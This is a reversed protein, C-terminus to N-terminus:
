VDKKLEDSLLREVGKVIAPRSYDCNKCADLIEYIASRRIMNFSNIEAELAKMAENRAAYLDGNEFMKQRFDDMDSEQLEEEFRNKIEPRRRTKSLESLHPKALGYCRECNMAARQYSM